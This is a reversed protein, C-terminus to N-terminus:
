HVREALIVHAKGFLSRVGPMAIRMANGHHVIATCDAQLVIGDGDRLPSQSIVVQKDSSAVVFSPVLKKTGAIPKAIVQFLISGANVDPVVIEIPLIALSELRRPM